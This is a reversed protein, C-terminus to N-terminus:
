EANLKQKSFQQLGVHKSAPDTGSWAVRIHYDTTRGREQTMAHIESFGWLFNIDCSNHM